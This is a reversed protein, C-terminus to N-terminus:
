DHAIGAGATLMPRALASKPPQGSPRAAGGHLIRTLTPAVRTIQLARRSVRTGRLEPMKCSTRHAFQATASASGTRARYAGMAYISRREIKQL